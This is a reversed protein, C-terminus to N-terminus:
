SSPVADTDGARTTKPGPGGDGPGDPGAKRLRAIGFLLGTGGVAALAVWGFEITIDLAKPVEMGLVLIGMGVVFWAFGRRLRDPHIKATLRGGVVSGVIAAGSMPLVIDWPIEFESALGVFGALSNMSIVVLSTGIAVDMKLGGFLVLAPVVLFGGGAGVLGAMVGVALGQAIVPGFRTRKSGGSVAEPHPKRGRLMAWATVFMMIAFAVLLVVAPIYPSVKGAFFAGVMGAAGFLAGTGWEVRGARAHTVVAALSTAGVVFLSAAIAVHADIGLAYRLIPLTLISGGGGLLGLTVGVVLALAVALAIM